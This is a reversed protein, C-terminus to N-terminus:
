FSIYQACHLPTTNSNQQYMFAEQAQTELMCWANAPMHHCVPLLCHQIVRQEWVSVCATETRLVFIFTSYFYKQGCPVLVVKGLFLCRDFHLPKLPAKVCVGSVKARKRFTATPICHKLKGTRLGRSFHSSKGSFNPQHNKYRMRFCQPWAAEKCNNALSHSRLSTARTTIVVALRFIKSLWMRCHHQQSKLQSTM